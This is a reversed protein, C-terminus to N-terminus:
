LIGNHSCIAFICRVVSALQTWILPHSAPQQQVMVWWGKRQRDDIEQNHPHPGLVHLVPLRIGASSGHHDVVQAERQQGEVHEVLYVSTEAGRTTAACLHAVRVRWALFSRCGRSATDGFLCLSTKNQQAERMEKSTSLFPPLQM